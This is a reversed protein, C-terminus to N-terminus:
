VLDHGVLRHREQRAVGAVHALLVPAAELLRQHRRDAGSSRSRAPARLAGCSRLPARTQRASVRVLGRWPPRQPSVAMFSRALKASSAVAHASANAGAALAWTLTPCEPHFQPFGSGGPLVRRATWDDPPM